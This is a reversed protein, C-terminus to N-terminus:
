WLDLVLRKGRCRSVCTMISTGEARELPTLVVDRHEPIGELVKVECTGCLGKNCTSLVGAGEENIVELLTRDEPVELTKGSRGLVVEFKENKANRSVAANAFREVRLVGAPADRLVDELGVLLAEPGCSYVRINHLDQGRVLQHLDFRKRGQEDGAWIVLRDGHVQRLEAHFAMSKRSRGLYILQYNVGAAAAAAAMPKLPTIGIGGAVFITKSAGVEFPFNNRPGRIVLEGNPVTTDHIRQSGKGDEVKLVAFQLTSRESPDSCLSYQRYGLEGVAVDICAGPAWAAIQAGNSARLTVLMINEAILSTNVVSMTQDIQQPLVSPKAVPGAGAVRQRPSLIGEPPPPDWAVEVGQPGRGEHVRLYEIEEYPTKLRLNPLRELLVALETRLLIRAFPAGLCAHVGRGFGLHQTKSQRGLVLRDPEEFKSSDRSGSNYAVFLSM